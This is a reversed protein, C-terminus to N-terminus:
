YRVHSLALSYYLASPLAAMRSISSLWLFAVLGIQSSFICFANDHTASVRVGLFHRTAVLAEETRGTDKLVLGYNFM